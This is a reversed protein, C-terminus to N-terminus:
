SRELEPRMESQVFAEAASCRFIHNAHASVWLGMGKAMRRRSGREREGGRETRNVKKNANQAGSDEDRRPGEPARARPCLFPSHPFLLRIVGPRRRGIPARSLVDAAARRRAEQCGNGRYGRGTPQKRCVLRTTNWYGEEGGGRRKGKGEAGVDIRGTPRSSARPAEAVSSSSESLFFHSGLCLRAHQIGEGDSLPSSSSSFADRACCCCCCCGSRLSYFGGVGPGREEASGRGFYVAMICAPVFRVFAPPLSLPTGFCLILPPFLFFLAFSPWFEFRRLSLSEDELSYLSFPPRERESASLLVFVFPLLLFLASTFLRLLRSHFLLHAAACFHGGGCRRHSSRAGHQGPILALRQRQLGARATRSLPGSCRCRKGGKERLCVCRVVYGCARARVNRVARRKRPRCGCHATLFFGPVAWRTFPFRSSFLLPRAEAFFRQRPGYTRTQAPQFMQQKSGEKHFQTFAHASLTLFTQSPSCSRVKSIIHARPVPSLSGRRFQKTGFNRRGM